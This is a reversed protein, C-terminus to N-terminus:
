KTETVFTSMAAARARQPFSSHKTEKSATPKSPTFIAAGYPALRFSIKRGVKTVKISGLQDTLDTTKPGLANANLTVTQPVGSRNLAIVATRDAFTRGFAVIGNADDTRLSIPDGHQLEPSSNRIATLRRYLKLVPNSDNALDWRMGRRNDPDKDGEMGLEDGYYVCPTGPWTFQIVAALDRLESRKGLQNLIRATDHSGLLNMLNRSIQPAYLNYNGFLSGLFESPKTANEPKLFGIVAFMFPYNMVSDWQDGKLWETSNGWNEGVIWANPDVSKVRKRFARWTDESVENAVDLRWGGLYANRQWFEATDLIYERAGKAETNWKPLSPFGFWAVYNPNPGVKVPFSKITYWDLYKSKEGNKIIDDFAFFNTATHNFVGDLIPRIGAAKMHNTLAIFEQNTGFQPDVTRYDTTEYRHNVPSKFIPCFYVGGVGLAKLYDLHKEVGAVDGGFRNSFTPKADWNEVKKPDNSSDGNDFRDPFIQYLVTSEVWEPVKIVRFTKPDLVFDQKKETFGKPGFFGAKKGDQLQFSYKLPTKGDWALKATALGYLSDGPTETMRVPTRGSVLLSIQDIDGPRVRLAITLQGRDLNAFPPEQRHLLGSISITNDLRKAPLAYDVPLIMLISNDNGNGDNQKPANPDSFWRNGDVIFKYQYRGPNLRVAVSWTKGDAERTMTLANTQWNTFTGAVSVSKAAVPAVFKFMTQVTDDILIM